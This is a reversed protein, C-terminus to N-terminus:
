ENEEFLWMLDEEFLWKRILSRCDGCLQRHRDHPPLREALEVDTDLAVEAVGCRHCRALTAEQLLAPADYCERCLIKDRLHPPVKAEWEEDPVLFMPPFIAGCRACMNPFRIFRFRGKETLIRNWEEYQAPPLGNKYVDEPLGNTPHSDESWTKREYDWKAPQYNPYFHKYRCECSALQNGCFPCREVDCGRVHRNGEFVGCDHCLSRNTPIFTRLATCM